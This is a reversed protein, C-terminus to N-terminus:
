SSAADQGLRSTIRAIIEDLSSQVGDKSPVLGLKYLWLARHEEGSLPTAGMTAFGRSLAHRASELILRPGVTEGQFAPQVAVEELYVGSDNEFYDCIAFGITRRKARAV